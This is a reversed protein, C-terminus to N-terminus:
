LRVRVRICACFFLYVDVRICILAFIFILVCILLSLSLVNQVGARENLATTVRSTYSTNGLHFRGGVVDMGGGGRGNERKRRM